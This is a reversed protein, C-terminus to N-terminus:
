LYKKFNDICTKIGTKADEEEYEVIFYETDGQTNCFKVVEAWDIDDEGIPAAMGKTLSFPKVHITQARGPYKKLVAVPEVGAQYTNGLDLQLVVRECTNQAIIDWPMEGEACGCECDCDSKIPKFEVSHSHLGTYMGHAKLNASIENLQKAGDLWTEKTIKDGWAFPLGPCILYKNGIIKNYEVFKEFEDPKTLSDWPAHWGCAELGLDDLIKKMEEPPMIIGGFFDVADYGADKTMKLAEVPDKSYIDRISYIQLGVKKTAM